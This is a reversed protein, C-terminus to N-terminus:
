KNCLLVTLLATVKLAMIGMVASPLKLFAAICLKLLIFLCMKVQGDHLFWRQMIKFNCIIIFEVHDWLIQLHRLKLKPLMSQVAYFHSFVNLVFCMLPTWYSLKVSSCLHSSLAWIEVDNLPLLLKLATSVICQLQIVAFRKNHPHWNRCNGM